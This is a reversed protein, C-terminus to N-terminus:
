PGTGAPTANRWLRLTYIAIGTAALSFLLGPTFTQDDGTLLFIGCTLCISFGVGLATAQTLSLRILNRGCTAHWLASRLCSFALCLLAFHFGTGLLLPVFMGADPTLRARMNSHPSFSFSAEDEDMLLEDGCQRAVIYVPKTTARYVAVGESGNQAGPPSIPIESEGADPRSVHWSDKPQSFNLQGATLAQDDLVLYSPTYHRIRFVGLHWEPSYFTQNRFEAIHMMNEMTREPQNVITRDLWPTQTQIGTLPDRAFETTTLHGSIRVLKGEHAPNIAAPNANYIKEECFKQIPLGLFLAYGICGIICTALIYCAVASHGLVWLWRLVKRPLFLSLYQNCWCEIRNWIKGPHEM